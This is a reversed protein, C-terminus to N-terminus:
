EEDRGRGGHGGNARIAGNPGVDIEEARIVLQGGFGGDRAEAGDNGSADITGDCLVHEAVLSMTGGALGQGSLEGADTGISPSGGDRFILTGGEAIRLEGVVLLPHRSLALVAGPGIQLREVAIVAGDGSPLLDSQGVVGISVLSEPPVEAADFSWGADELVEITGDMGEVGPRADPGLLAAGPEGRGGGDTSLVGDISSAQAVRISVIGGPGGDGGASAALIVEPELSPPPETPTPPEDDGWLFCGQCLLLPLWKTM